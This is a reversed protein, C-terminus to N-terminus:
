AANCVNLLRIKGGFIWGLPLRIFGNSQLSVVKQLPPRLLRFGFIERKRKKQLAQSKGRREQQTTKAQKSRFPSDVPLFISSLSLLSLSLSLSFIPFNSFTSPFQSSKHTCLAQLQQTLTQFINSSFVLMHWPAFAKAIQSKVKKPM